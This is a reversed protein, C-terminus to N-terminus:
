TWKCVAAFSPDKSFDGFRPNRNEILWIMSNIVFIYNKNSSIEKSSGFNKKLCVNNASWTTRRKEM